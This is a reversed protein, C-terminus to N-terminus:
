GDLHNWLYQKLENAMDDLDEEHGGGKLHEIMVSNSKLMLKTAANLDRIHLANEEARQELMTIRKERDVSPKRMENLVKVASWGSVLASLLVFLVIIFDGLMEANLASM